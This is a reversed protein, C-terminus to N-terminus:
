EPYKGKRSLKQNKCLHFTQTTTKRPTDRPDCFFKTGHKESFNETQAKEHFITQCKIKETFNNPIHIPTDFVFNPFQM